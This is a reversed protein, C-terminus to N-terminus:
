FPARQSLIRRVEGVNQKTVLVLLTDGEEFITGGHPVVFKNDRSVLVILSDQPLGLEVIPHGIIASHYPVIFDVLETEKNDSSAFELPLRYQSLIKSAVGLKHALFSVTWGQFLVSTIVVFFTLYFFQVAFEIGTIMPFTALIIPVAGRIGVWSVFLKERFSFHSGALSIFVSLPRAVFMLVAAILFGKGTVMILESPLILLGLTLFMAIQSLWALGNYFRFLTKKHVFDSNGVVIGSIYVALYGSGQVVSTVGYIFLAFALAFVPYMGEHSVKLRNMLHVMIKGLAYGSVAGVGMQLIFRVILSIPSTGATGILDIFGLTLFVAMPDNSGSEFELLPQITGRLSIQKSRLISFVAAADTSSVIAGLLLASLLSVHLIYMAAIGIVVATIVVGLTALISGRIAVPKVANWHTELGGTFLIFILSVLAISQATHIDTFRIGLPGEPGALIGVVLFLLLAPIGFSHSFRTLYVSVLVLFSGFFLFLEFSIM